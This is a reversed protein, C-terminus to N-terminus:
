HRELSQIQMTWEVEDKRKQEVRVPIYGLSPACWFRTVRPSYQRESRYVLTAIDGLPTSLTAESERSYHYERVANGNLLLFEKPTHGQLLEDILAIQVSLDDQTGAVLPMDVKTDEYVGSVRGATWDFVVNSDRKTSSTGDDAKYSLPQVGSSTVRMVSQQIPRESFMKGIGRPESHTSYTWTDDHHELQVTSTAVTLGHWIWNYSAKFPKLEAPAALADAASCSWLTVSLLASLVTALRAAPYPARCPACQRDVALKVM